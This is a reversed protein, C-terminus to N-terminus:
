DRGCAAGGQKLVIDAVPDFTLSMQRKIRFNYEIILSYDPYNTQLDVYLDSSARGASGASSQAALRDCMIPASSYTLASEAHGACRAACGQLLIKCAAARVRPWTCCSEHRQRDSHVCPEGWAELILACLLHHPQVLGDVGVM